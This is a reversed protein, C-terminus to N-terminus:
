VLKIHINTGYGLNCSSSFSVVRVNSGSHSPIGGEMSHKGMQM